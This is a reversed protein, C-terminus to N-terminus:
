RLDVVEVGPYKKPDFSFTADTLNANPTYNTVEYTYRNGNKEFMKGKAIVKKAKDIYLEVKFFQKSKDIPTLEIIQLTKGGEATEGSLRYLFEKDYFNSFLKAPTITKDGGDYANVQVEKNEKSYTWVTKNDCIIEQGAMAIKYKQGKLFITGKRSDKTKGSASEVKLTFDAKISNAKKFNASTADLVQKAAPDNKQAWVNMSFIGAVAGLLLIKKM